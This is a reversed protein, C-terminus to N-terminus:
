RFDYWRILEPPQHTAMRQLRGTARDEGPWAVEDLPGVLVEAVEKAAVDDMADFEVVVTFRYRRTM